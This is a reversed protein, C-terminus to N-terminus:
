AAREAQYVGPESPEAMMALGDYDAAIRMCTSKTKTKSALRQDIDPRLVARVEFRSFARPSRCGAGFDDSGFTQEAEIGNLLDGLRVTWGAGSFSEISWNIESAYLQRMVQALDGPPM